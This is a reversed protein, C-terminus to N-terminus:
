RSTAAWRRSRRVAREGEGSYRTSSTASTSSSTPAAARKRTSRSISGAFGGYKRLMDYEKRKPPDSLTQYAENVDKFKDAAGAEKNRDPHYKMALRRYAKKVDDDSANESVGLVAYFDKDGPM